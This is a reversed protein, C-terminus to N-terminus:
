RTAPFVIFNLIHNQEGKSGKLSIRLCDSVEINSGNKKYTYTKVDDNTVKEIIVGNPLEYNNGVSNAALSNIIGNINNLTATENDFIIRRTIVTSVEQLSNVVTEQTTIENFGGFSRFMFPIASVALISIIVVVLLLEVLTFAKKNM